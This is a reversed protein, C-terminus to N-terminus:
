EMTECQGTSKHLECALMFELAEIRYRAQKITEGWAYLGHGAILYAQGTGNEDMYADIESALAAINQENAFVPLTLPQQPDEFGTFLKQLEYGQLQMAQGCHRSLVTAAVSHSHLVAGISTDRQYLQLHLGTEYSSRRHTDGGLLEGQLNIRLIDEPGIEGKHCGSATIAIEDEALRASFNGSSAPVWGQADFRRGVAVLDAAQQTFGPYLPEEM